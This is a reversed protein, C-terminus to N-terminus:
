RGSGLKRLHFLQNPNVDRKRAVLSVTIQEEPL